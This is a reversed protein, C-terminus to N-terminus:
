IVAAARIIAMYGMDVNDADSNSVRASLPVQPVADKRDHTALRVGSAYFHVQDPEWKIRWVTNAAEYTSWTLVTTKSNGLNDKTVCRFVSGAIEFYAAGLAEDAPNLFGWKKAESGSPTTPINLTMQLDAYLHQLFSSVSAANMRLYVTSVTPTGATAKWFSTDYGKITSDYVYGDRKDPNLEM